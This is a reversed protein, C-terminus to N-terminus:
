YPRYNGRYIKWTLYAGTGTANGKLTGSKDDYKANVICWWSGRNTFPEKICFKNKSEWKSIKGEDSCARKESNCFTVKGGGQIYRTSKGSSNSHYSLTNGMLLEVLEEDRVSGSPFGLGGIQMKGGQSARTDKPPPSKESRSKVQTGSSKAQTTTLSSDSTKTNVIGQDNQSVDSDYANKLIILQEEYQDLQKKLYKNDSKAWNRFDDISDYGLSQIGATSINAEINIKENLYRLKNKLEEIEDAKAVPSPLLIFILIALLGTSARLM